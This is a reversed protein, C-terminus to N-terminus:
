EKGLSRLENHHLAFRYAMNQNQLKPLRSVAGLSIADMTGNLLGVLVITISSFYNSLSSQQVHLKGFSM